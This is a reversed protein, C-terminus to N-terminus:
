LFDPLFSVRGHFRVCSRLYIISTLRPVVQLSRKRTDTSQQIVVQYLSQRVQEGIFFQNVIRENCGYVWNAGGLAKAAGYEVAVLFWINFRIELLESCVCMDYVLVCAVHERRKVGCGANTPFQQSTIRTSGDRESTCPDAPLGFAHVRIRGLILHVGM